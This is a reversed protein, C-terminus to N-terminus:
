DSSKGALLNLGLEEKSEVRLRPIRVQGKASDGRTAASDKAGRTEEM